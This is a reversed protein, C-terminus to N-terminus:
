AADLDDVLLATRKGLQYNRRQSVDNPKQDHGATDVEVVIGVGGLDVAPNGGDVDDQDVLDAADQHDATTIVPVPSEGSARDVQALGYRLGAYPLGDLLGPYRALDGADEARVGIGLVDDQVGGITLDPLLERDDQGPPRDGTLRGRTVLGYLNTPHRADLQGQELHVPGHPHADLMVHGASAGVNTSASSRAQVVRVAGRSIRPIGFAM